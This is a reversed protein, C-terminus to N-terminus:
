NAASVFAGGRRMASTSDVPDGPWVLEQHPMSPAFYRRYSRKVPSRATTQQRSRITVTKATDGATHRPKAASGQRIPMVATRDTLPPEYARVGAVVAAAVNPEDGPQQQTLAQQRANRLIALQQMAIDDVPGAAVEPLPTSAKGFDFKLGPGESMLPSKSSRMAPDLLEDLIKSLCLPNAHESDIFMSADCGVVNPDFSGVIKLGHKDALRRMVADVRRLGEMYPKDRVVNLFLPNFPPQALTVEVGKTGLYALLADIAEVGKPDIKPPSNANQGGFSVSLSKSRRETFLSRHDRSWVISGDPLLTDLSKFYRYSTAHPREEAKFWRSINGLLMPVSVLENWRQVPLTELWGAEQLGLRKAMARYYPVGPLWLHDRRDAISTFINDRLSIMMRKPLKDHRVFLETVALVDEYYDRHVHANYVNIGPLLDAHAEQWHSAGLIAMDPAAQMQGIHADRLARININLDFVAYSKGAALAQAIKAPGDGSYMEPGFHRNAISICWLGLGSLLVVMVVFRIARHSSARVSVEPRSEQVQVKSMGQWGWAFCLAM